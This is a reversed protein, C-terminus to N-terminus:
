MQQLKKDAAQAQSTGPYKEVFRTYIIRAMTAEGMQQWGMAQKLLASASKVAKRTSTWCRSTLRLPMRMASKLFYCEGINYLASEAQESKPFKSVFAQFEKRAADYKKQQMLQFGRRIGDTRCKQGLSGCTTRSGTQSSCKPPLCSCAVGSASAQQETVFTSSGGDRRCGFLRAPKRHRPKACGFAQARQLQDLKHELEELKGNLTRM